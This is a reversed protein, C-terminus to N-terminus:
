LYKLVKKNETPYIAISSQMSTLYFTAYISDLCIVWVEYYPLIGFVTIWRQIVICWCQSDKPMHLYKGSTSNHLLIM